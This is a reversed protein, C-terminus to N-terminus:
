GESLAESIQIKAANRAPLVGGILGIVLSVIMAWGITTFKTVPAVSSGPVFISFFSTIANSMAIGLGVGFLGGLLSLMASESLFLRQIFPRRAGMARLIGIEWRRESVVMNMSNYIGLVMLLIVFVIVTSLLRAINVISKQFFKSVQRAERIELEPHKSQTLARVTEIDQPEQVRIRIISYSDSFRPILSALYDRPVLVQADTPTKTEFIGVVLLSLKVRGAKAELKDGIHSGLTDAAVQGLLCEGDRQFLQGDLHKFSTVRQLDGVAVGRIEVDAGDVSADIVDEESFGYIRPLVRYESAVRAPIKSDEFSNSGQSALVYVNREGYYKNMVTQITIQLGDLISFISVFTMVSIAIASITLITTTNQVSLDRLALRWASTAEAM